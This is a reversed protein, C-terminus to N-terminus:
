KKMAKSIAKRRKKLYDDSADSDGDNDIDDNGEESDLIGDNDSDLDNEDIFGGNDKMSSQIKEAVWGDYFGDKAM